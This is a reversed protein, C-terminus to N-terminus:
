GDCSCRCNPPLRWCVWRRSCRRECSRSPRRPPKWWSRRPKCLTGRRWSASLSAATNRGARHRQVGRRDGRRYRRRTAYATSGAGCGAGGQRRGGGAERDTRGSRRSRACAHGAVGGSARRWGWRKACRAGGHLGAKRGARRAYRAPDGAGAGHSRDCTQMLQMTAAEGTAFRTGAAAVRALDPEGNEILPLLIPYADFGMSHALGILGANRERSDPANEYIDRYIVTARRPWGSAIYREAIRLLADTAVARLEPEFSRRRIMLAEIAAPKAIGGLTSIAARSIAPNEDDLRDALFRISEEEHRAGVANIIAVKWLLDDHVEIANCLAEGAELSSNHQLARRALDRIEVDNEGMVEVLVPVCEARGIREILRLMWVRLPKPTKQGLRTLIAECLESREEEAGPRAANHSM